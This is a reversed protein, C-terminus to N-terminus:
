TNASNQKQSREIKEGDKDGIGIVDLKKVNIPCGALESLSPETRGGDGTVMEKIYTGSEATVTLTIEDMKEEEVMIDLIKRKRIKDARRHAVRSPTRQNIYCGRLANVAENVKGKENFSAVVRYTKSM